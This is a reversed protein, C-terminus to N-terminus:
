YTGIGKVASLFKYMLWLVDVQFLQMTRGMPTTQLPAKTLLPLKAKQCVECSAVYNVVDSAMNVWYGVLKLRSWTREM